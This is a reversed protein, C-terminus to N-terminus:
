FRLSGTLAAGGRVTTLDLRWRSATRDAPKGTRARLAGFTVVMAAFVGTMAFSAISAAALRDHRECLDLVAPNGVSRAVACYDQDPPLNPPVDNAPDDDAVSLAAADRISRHSPGGVRATAWTGVAAALAGVGLGLSVGLGIAGARRRREIRPDAAPPEVTVAVPAAPSEVVQPAASPPPLAARGAPTCALAAAHDPVAARVCELEGLLAALGSRREGEPLSELHRGLLRDADTLSAVDDPAYRLADLYSRLARAALDVRTSRQGACAEHVPVLDQATLWEVAARLLQDEEFSQKAKTNHDRVAERVEPTLVCETPTAARIPTAVLLGVMVAARPAFRLMRHIALM